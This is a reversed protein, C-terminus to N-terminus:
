RWTRPGLELINGRLMHPGGYYTIFKNKQLASVDLYNLVVNRTSEERMSKSHPFYLGIQVPNLVGLVTDVSLKDGLHYLISAVSAWMSEDYLRNDAYMRNYEDLLGKKSYYQMMSNKLKDRYSEGDEFYTIPILNEYESVDIEVQVRSNCDASLIQAIYSFSGSISNVYGLRREGNEDEYLLVNTCNLFDTYEIDAGVNDAVNKKRLEVDLLHLQAELYDHNDLYYDNELDFEKAISLIKIKSLEVISYSLKLDTIKKEELNYPASIVGITVPKDLTLNDPGRLYVANVCGMSVAISLPKRLSELYQELLMNQRSCLGVLYRNFSLVSGASVYVRRKYVALLIASVYISTAIHESTDPAYTIRIMTPMGDITEPVRICEDILNRIIKMKDISSHVNEGAGLNLKVDVVRYGSTDEEVSFVVKPRLLDNAILVDGPLSSIEEISVREKDTLEDLSKSTKFLITANGESLENKLKNYCDEIDSEKVTIIRKPTADNDVALLEGDHQFLIGYKKYIDIDTGVIRESLMVGEPIQMIYLEGYSHTEYFQAIHVLVPSASYNDTIAPKALEDISVYKM